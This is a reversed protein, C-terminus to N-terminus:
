VERRAQRITGPLVRLQLCLAEVSAGSPGHKLASVVCATSTKNKHSGGIKGEREVLLQAWDDKRKDSMPGALAYIAKFGSRLLSFSWCGNRYSRLGKPTTWGHASAVSFLAQLQPRNSKGQVIKVTDDGLFCAEYEILPLLLDAARQEDLLAREIYSM